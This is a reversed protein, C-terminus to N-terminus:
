KARNKSQQRNTQRVRCQKCPFTAATEILTTKISSIPIETRQKSQLETQNIFDEM